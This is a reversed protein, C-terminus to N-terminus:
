PQLLTFPPLFPSCLVALVSMGPKFPFTIGDGSSDTSGSNVDVGEGESISEAGNRVPEAEEGNEEVAKMKKLDCPEGEPHFGQSLKDQKSDLM